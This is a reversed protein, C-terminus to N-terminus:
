HPGSEKSQLRGAHGVARGAGARCPARPGWGVPEWPLLGFRGKCAAKSVSRGSAGGAGWRCGVTVVAGLGALSSAAARPLSRGSASSVSVTLFRFEGEQGLDPRSAARPPTLVVFPGRSLPLRNRLTEQPLLGSVFLKRHVSNSRNQTKFTHFTEFSFDRRKLLVPTSDHRPPVRRSLRPPETNPKRPDTYPSLTNLSGIAKDRSCHGIRCCELFWFLLSNLSLGPVLLPKLPQKCM